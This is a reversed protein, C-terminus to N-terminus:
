LSSWAIGGALLSGLLIVLIFDIEWWDGNKASDDKIGLRQAM